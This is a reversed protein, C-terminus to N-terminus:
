KEGLSAELIKSHSLIKSSLKGLGKHYSSVSPLPVQELCTGM